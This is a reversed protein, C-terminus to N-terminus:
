SLRGCSFPTSRHLQQNHFRGALDLLQLTKQRRFPPHGGGHAMYAIQGILAVTKFRGIEPRHILDRRVFFVHHGSEPHQGSFRIFDIQGGVRVAFALGNRPMELVHEAQRGALAHGIRGYRFVIDLGANGRWAVNIHGKDMGLLGAPRQITEHAVLNGPRKGAGAGFPAQRGTADLTGGHPDDNVPFLLDPREDGGRM